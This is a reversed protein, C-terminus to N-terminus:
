KRSVMAGSNAEQKALKLEEQITPIMIGAWTRFGTVGAHDAEYHTITLAKNQLHVMMRLYAEDFAPGSLALISDAEAQHKADLETPIKIGLHVSARTIGNTWKTYDDVMRRALQRVGDSSAKDAAAQSLRIEMLARAATMTAFQRDAPTVFPGINGQDTGTGMDLISPEVNNPAGPFASNVPPNTPMSNNNLTRQNQPNYPDTSGTQQAFCSAGAAAFVVVAATIQAKRILAM